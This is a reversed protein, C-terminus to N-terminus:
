RRASWSAARARGGGPARPRRPTDIGSEAVLLRDAPVLPALGETTALDVQLTKLNRNNIGILRRGLRLARDLEAADHVEVLVDLASSGPSARSSARRARRRAGGHDAAHLRRRAGADRGGSLSRPHLGQAPVPLRVAARAAACIARRAGQFHSARDAGLPLRRRRRRLGARAGASRLRRPDPGQSPSAKKIEAILASSTRRRAQAELARSSAARGAPRRCGAELAALPVSLRAAPSRARAQRACIEALVDTVPAAGRQHDRGAAGAGGQRRRQRDGRGGAGRRRALDSPGGAVVLAAASNLLVIDRYPGRVGDLLARLADANTTADAGSAPGRAAARPLGAQEPTVEFTRVRATACSPSRRRAPPPSSTSATPATCWGPASPASSAWCAPRAARGVRPAFVGLLQRRRRGSQRAARAPQLDHAHRARGAAGAVHRMAGHHRPAMLFGIGAERIAREVLALSPTSTSASRRWCTPRAPAAVVPARNGHKAVPVGCAAVVLAAATSINFTGPRTAAPAAPTSRTPRRRSRSWASACRRRRRRHARRRDRRAGAAGDPLGRGAGAHRRRVDHDRVRRAGPGPEAAAGSAVLALLAKMRDPGASM